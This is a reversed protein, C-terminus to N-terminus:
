RVQLFCLYSAFMKRWHHCPCAYESISDRRQPPYVAEVMNDVEASLAYVNDYLKSLWDNTEKVNTSEDPIGSIM